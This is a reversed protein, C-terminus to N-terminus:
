ADGGGRPSCSIALAQLTRTGALLAQEQLERLERVLYAVLGRSERREKKKKQDDEGDQGDGPSSTCSSTQPMLGMPTHRALLLTGVAGLRQLQGGVERWLHAEDDDDPQHDQAWGRM